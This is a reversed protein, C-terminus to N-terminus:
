GLYRALPPGVLKSAWLPLRQWADILLAYRPNAPSLNPMEAATVLRYEYNLPTELFGMNKKFAYSGTGRKSRGFDFATCGRERARRMVEYYMLDHAGTSRAAAGGGGYYPLVEGRFYFSLVSTLPTGDPARLTLVECDEGFTRLLVEAYGRQFVPTGLNRLSEAYLEYWEGTEHSVHATLGNKLGKRVEARAKRPILNLEAEDDAALPRRFTVYLDKRSWDDRQPASNRFELHDVGLKTGLTIAAAELAARAIPDDALVGGYVCFPTSVLAHGFLLSRVEALPLLGVVQRAREAVLYHSAHGFAERLVAAWEFRHFFTAEAHRVVYANWQTRDRDTAPRVTVEPLV